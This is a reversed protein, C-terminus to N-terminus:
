AIVMSSTCSCGCSIPIMRGASFHAVAPVRCVDIDKLGTVRQDERCSRDLLAVSDEDALDKM